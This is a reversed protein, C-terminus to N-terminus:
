SYTIGHRRMAKALLIVAPIPLTFLVAIGFLTLAVWADKPDQWDPSIYVSVFLGWFAFALLTLFAILGTSRKPKALGQFRLFSPAMLREFDANKGAWKALLWCYHIWACAILVGFILGILLLTKAESETSMWRRVAIVAVPALPAFTILPLFLRQYLLAIKQAAPPPSTAASFITM